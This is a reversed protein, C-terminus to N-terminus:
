DDTGYDEEEIIANARDVLRGLNVLWEDPDESCTVILFAVVHMIATMVVANDFGDLEALKELILEAVIEITQHLNQM